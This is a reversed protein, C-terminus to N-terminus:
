VCPRERDDDGAEVTSRTGVTTTYTEWTLGLASIILWLMAAAIMVPPDAGYSIAALLATARLIGVVILAAACAAQLRRAFPALASALVLAGVAGLIIPWVQVGLVTAVTGITWSGAITWLACAVGVHLWWHRLWRLPHRVAFRLDFRSM